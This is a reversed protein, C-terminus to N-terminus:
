TATQVRFLPMCINTVKESSEQGAVILDLQDPKPGINESFYMYAHEFLGQLGLAVLM